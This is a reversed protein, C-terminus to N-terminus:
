QAMGLSASSPLNVLRREISEATTLDSRPCEAYILQQHILTWTPRTFIGHDHTARLVEDRVSAGEDDFLIANLWYNSRTGRPEEVFTVGPMGRFATAYRQALARKATVFTELQELQAVGLAANINPLRYNWGVEDHQFAWKHALKATTTLHKARRALEVNNTVIAGGGGTTIIKNGNFSLVGLDGIGGCPRDHYTSGLSETADEIIPLDFARAVAGLADMDAPHGFVHVPVIARIPRGTMRNILGDNGKLAIQRLHGELKKADIGFSHLDSDVLHPIAGCYSVANATAIFTLTPVLVEDGSRVGALHLAVQLAATGNVLAVASKTGCTQALRAEFQDVFSGVSSVWGTDLCQKVYDWEHGGFRPEHLHVPRTAAGVVSEVAAVISQVGTQM